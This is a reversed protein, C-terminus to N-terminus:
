AGRKNVLGVAETLALKVEGGVVQSRTGLQRAVADQSPFPKQLYTDLLRVQAPELRGAVQDRNGQWWSSLRGKNEPTLPAGLIEEASLATSQGTNIRHGIQRRGSEERAYNNVPVM